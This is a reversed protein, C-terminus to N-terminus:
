ESLGTTRRGTVQCEISALKAIRKIRQTETKNLSTKRNIYKILM